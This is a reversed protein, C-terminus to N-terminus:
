GEATRKSAKSARRRRALPPRIAYKPSLSFDGWPLTQDRRIASGRYSTVVRGFNEVVKGAITRRAGVVGVWGIVNDLDDLPIALDFDIPDVNPVLGRFALM